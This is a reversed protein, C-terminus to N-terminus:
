FHQFAEDIENFSKGDLRWRLGQIEHTRGICTLRCEWTLALRQLEDEADAPVTFCLEYDEGGSLGLRVAANHEAFQRLAPSLPLDAIELDAGLHSASLLKSLDDHLGDSIDIMATAIGALQRGQSV